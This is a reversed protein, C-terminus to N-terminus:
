ISLVGRVNSLGESWVGTTASNSMQYKSSIATKLLSRAGTTICQFSLKSIAMRKHFCVYMGCVLFYADCATASICELRARCLFIIQMDIHAWLTMWKICAFLFHQISSTPNIFEATFVTHLCYNRNLSLFVCKIPRKKQYFFLLYKEVENSWFMFLQIQDKTERPMFDLSANWRNNGPM